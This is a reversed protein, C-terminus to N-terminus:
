CGPAGKGFKKCCDHKCHYYEGVVIAACAAAFIPAELLDACESRGFSLIANCGLLCTELDHFPSPSHASGGGDELAGFFGPPLLPWPFPRPRTARVIFPFYFRPAGSESELPHTKPNTKRREKGRM